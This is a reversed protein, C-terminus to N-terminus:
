STSAASSTSAAAASVASAAWVCEKNEKWTGEGEAYMEKKWIPVTAKLTDICYQVAELSAKRHPSSVAIIVSSESIPVHGIRHLVAIHEVEWRQRMVQCIKKIEKEAMPIYADYELRIVEKGDFNNRTTGIFLSIAGSTPSTVKKVADDVNLIDSTIQVTNQGTAM